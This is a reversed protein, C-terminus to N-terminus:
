KEAEEQTLILKSTDEVQKSLEVDNRLLTRSDTSIDLSYLKAVMSSSPNTRFQSSLLDIARGAIVTKRFWFPKEEQEFSVTVTLRQDPPPSTGKDKGDAPAARHRLKMLEVKKYQALKVPDTPLKKTRTVKQRTASSAESGGFNKKLLARAASEAKELTEASDPTCNHTDPYRHDVCFLGRCQDCSERQPDTTFAYLTPKRCGELACRHLPAGSSGAAEVASADVVANVAATCSHNDAFIHDRCYAQKCKCTFPLFDVVSCTPVACQVGIQLIPNSSDRDSM